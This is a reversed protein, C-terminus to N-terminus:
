LKVEWNRYVIDRNHYKPKIWDWVENPHSTTRFGVEFMRIDRSLGLWTVCQLNRTYQSANEFSEELENEIKELKSLTGRSEIENSIQEYSRQDDNDTVIVNYEPIYVPYKSNIDRLFFSFPNKLTKVHIITPCAGEGILAEDVTLELRCESENLFKFQFNSCSGEGCVIKLSSAKGNSVTIEGEPKCNHWLLYVKKSLVYM